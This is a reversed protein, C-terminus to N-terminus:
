GPVGRFIVKGLVLCPLAEQNPAALAEIYDERQTHVSVPTLQNPLAPNTVRLFWNGGITTLERLEARHWGGMMCIVLGADSRQRDIFLWEGNVVVSQMAFAAAEDAFLAVTNDSHLVPAGELWDSILPLSEQKALETFFDWSVVGIPVAKADPRDPRGEGTQLWHVSVGLIAAIRPLYRSHEVKGYELDLVTQQACGVEKALGKQTKRQKRREAKLRGGLERAVEVGEVTKVM